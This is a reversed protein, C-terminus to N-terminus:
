LKEDLLTKVLGPNAKGQTQQMVQGLFWGVLTTKGSRYANVEDPHAALIDSVIKELVERDSIQQLGHSRILDIPSKGTLFAEALVSKATAANITDQMLTDMLDALHHPQLPVEALSM